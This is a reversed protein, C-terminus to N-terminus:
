LDLLKATTVEGSRSCVATGEAYGGFGNKARFAMVAEGPQGQTLSVQQYSGPDRLLQKIARGCSYPGVEQSASTSSTDNGGFSTAVISLLFLAGVSKLILKM